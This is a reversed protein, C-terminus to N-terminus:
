LFIKFFRIIIIVKVIKDDLRARHGFLRVHQIPSNLKKIAVVTISIKLDTTYIYALTTM